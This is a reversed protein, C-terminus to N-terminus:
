CGTDDREIIEIEVRPNEKDYFLFGEIHKIQKDDKYATGNLGDQVSKIYNDIDGHVKNNMYIVIKFYINKTEIMTMGPNQEKACERVKKEYDLTTKPTIVRGKVLRPREKPKGRGPVTIKYSKM